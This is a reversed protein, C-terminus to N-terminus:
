FSITRMTTANQPTDRRGTVHDGRKPDTARLAANESLVIQPKRVSYEARMESILKNQDM